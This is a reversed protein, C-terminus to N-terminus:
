DQNKELRNLDDPTNCNFLMEAVSQDVTLPQVPIQTLGMQFSRGGQQIFEQLPKLAARRYFGCLPEWGSAQRPVVALMSDPVWTLQNVWTQLITPQLLPLDCALLLVWEAQIQALGDALAVLPGQGPHSELLFQVNESVVPQYREPWPTLIYIPQCCTAAVQCMRQLLPQGEFTVLAKDQGMRSSQGGALILAAINNSIM